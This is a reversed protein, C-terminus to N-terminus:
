HQAWPKQRESREPTETKQVGQGPKSSSTLANVDTPVFHREPFPKWIQPMLSLQSGHMWGGMRGDEAGASDRKLVCTVPNLVPNFRGKLSRWSYFFLKLRNHHKQSFNKNPTLVSFWFCSLTLKGSCTNNEYIASSVRFTDKAQLEQTRSLLNLGTRCIAGQLLHSSTLSPTPLSESANVRYMVRHMHVASEGRFVAWTSCCEEWQERKKKEKTEPLRHEDRFTIKGWCHEGVM